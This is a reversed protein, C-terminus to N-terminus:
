SARGCLGAYDCFGCSPPLLLHADEFDALGVEAHEFTARVKGGGIERMTAKWSSAIRDWTEKPTAGDLILTAEGDLLGTTLFRRQRLMFYGTEVDVNEDSVHRAYVSLQLALGNELEARRRSERRQWKLDIVVFRGDPTKALMDIFGQVETDAALSGTVTFPHEVAVVTLKKSRLFRALEALAQPIAVKAAALEGAAGPLLLTAGIQPLLETLRAKAATEINEPEPAGGPGFLEEAIGHALTGMLADINPLSQRASPYLKGAYRLTWQLPCSLLTSLSSASEARRSPIAAKPATWETRPGPPAVFAVPARVVKRGILTPKAEDLIVEARVTTESELTGRRAILTHWLPHATTEAGAALAPRVLIIRQAFQLPREWAASLRRLALDPEDLPCGADALVAREQKNWITRSNNEGLDAFHWWVVTGAEGWIAGPHRVARWPAAEAVASPDAVGSGVAEELMREILVRDLRNTETAAIATALEAAIEALSFFLPEESVAARKVAWASVKEAIRRASARTMGQTPDHREPEVFERWEALRAAVKSADAGEAAALDHAIKVWAANWEEGGVGPSGAVVDALKNAASRPLPGLPLLLFDLLRRPDPPEWALAFSLPLLQLLARYPSPASYGLRPLGAKHLSHDLLGTDKGLIFVLNRNEEPASALWAALTEAAVLETDAALLALRGDDLSPDTGDPLQEIRVGCRELHDILARWGVPILAREDVLKISRLSLRPRETLANIADRLRDAHGAPLHPGAQEAMSLHSFRTRSEGVGPRWGAEILEDRWGLLERTSSWPDLAFSRSWFMDSGAAELKRRYTAIREVTSSLPGGLGVMTEIHDLLRLPGVVAQDLVAPGPGPHEPWAGADAFWSFVLDM